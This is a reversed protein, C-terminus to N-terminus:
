VKRSGTPTTAAMVGQFKGNRSAVQFTAAASAAPQTTRRFGALSVGRV